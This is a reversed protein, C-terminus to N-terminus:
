QDFLKQSKDMGHIEISDKVNFLFRLKFVLPFSKRQNTNYMSELFRTVQKKDKEDTEVHWLRLIDKGEQPRTSLSKCRATM